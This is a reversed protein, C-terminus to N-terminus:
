NSNSKIKEKVEKIMLSVLNDINIEPQWNWDRRADSDDFVQPWSDATILYFHLKCNIELSAWLLLYYLTGYYSAYILVM